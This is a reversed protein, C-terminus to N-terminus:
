IRVATCKIVFEWYSNNLLLYRSAADENRFAWYKYSYMRLMFIFAVNKRRILYCQEPKNFRKFSAASAFEQMRM